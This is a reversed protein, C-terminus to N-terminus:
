GGVEKFSYGIGRITEIYKGCIGIKKRLGAIQVDVSRDTVPYDEGHVNNVIQNRTFVWGPKSALYYLIKFESLTLNVRKNQVLVEHRGTHIVMEGISINNKKDESTGRKIRLAAKVRAILIKPSFPKTIYDDAGLELGTVIDAEEGKASLIIIAVDAGLRGAKIEKCVDIGGIGPLMLDLLILDPVFEKVKSLGEEGSSACEVDYGQKFLNYHLLEQIDEDDEVILIKEKKM